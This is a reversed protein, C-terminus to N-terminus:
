IRLIDLILLYMSCHSGTFYRVILFSRTLPNPLSNWDFLCLYNPGPIAFASPWETGPFWSAGLCITTSLPPIYCAQVQLVGARLLGNLQHYVRVM